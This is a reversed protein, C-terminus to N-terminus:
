QINGEYSASLATSQPFAFPAWHQSVTFALTDLMHNTHFIQSKRTARPCFNPALPWRARSSCLVPCQTNIQNSGSCCGSSPHSIVKTTHVSISLSRIGPRTSGKLGLLSQLSIEGLQTLVFDLSFTTLILLIIM